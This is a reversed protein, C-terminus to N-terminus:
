QIMFGEVLLVVKNVSTPQLNKLEIKMLSESGFAEKNSDGKESRSEVKLVVIKKNRPDTVNAFDDNPSRNNFTTEPLFSCVTNEM